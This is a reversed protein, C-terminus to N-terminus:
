NEAWYKMGDKPDFICVAQSKAKQHELSAEAVIKLYHPRFTFYNSADMDQLSQHEAESLAFASKLRDYVQQMSTFFEDDATDQIGDVGAKLDNIKAIVSPHVGMTEMMATDVRNLNVQGPGYVTVSNEIAHFIKDDMGKVFKLEGVFEFPANKPFHKLGKTQYAFKESGKEYDNLIFDDEDQFDVIEAALDAATEENLYRGAKSL